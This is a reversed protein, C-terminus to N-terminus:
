MGLATALALAIDETSRHGRILYLHHQPLLRKLREDATFTEFANVSDSVRLHLTEGGPDHVAISLIDNFMARQMFRDVRSHGVTVLIRPFQGSNKLASLGTVGIAALDIRCDVCQLVFYTRHFLTQLGHAKRGPHCSNAGHQKRQQTLTIM